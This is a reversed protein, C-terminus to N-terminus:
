SSRLSDKTGNAMIKAGRKIVLREPTQVRLVRGLGDVRDDTYGIVRTGAEITLTAGPEVFIVDRLHYVNNSTWTTSSTVRDTVDIDAAQACLGAAMAAAIIFSRFKM